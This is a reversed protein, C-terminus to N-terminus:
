DRRRFCGARGRLVAEADERREFPGVPKVQGGFRLVAMWLGDPRQRISRANTAARTWCFLRHEPLGYVQEDPDAGPNPDDAKTAVLVGPLSPAWWGPLAQCAPCSWIGLADDQWCFDARNDRAGCHGCTRAAREDGRMAEFIVPPETILEPIYPRDLAPPNDISTQGWWDESQEAEAQLEALKALVEPTYEPREEPVEAIPGAVHLGHRERLHLRFRTKM